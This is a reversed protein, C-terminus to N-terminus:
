NKFTKILNVQRQAPGFAEYPLCGAKQARSFPDGPIVNNDQRVLLALDILQAVTEKALYVLMDAATLKIKNVPFDLYRTKLWELFRSSSFNGGCFSAKRSDVYAYYARSFLSLFYIYNMQNM